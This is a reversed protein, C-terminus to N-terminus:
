LRFASPTASVSSARRRARPTADLVGALVMPQNAVFGVTRGAIRGFGTVINKPTLRRVIEFFDGEDAVKLILEKIDYPKNPNDPVLTDLWKDIRDAQGADAM